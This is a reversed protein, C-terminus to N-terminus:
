VVPYCRKEWVVTGLDLKIVRDAVHWFREDHSVVLVTKGRAKLGPLVTLYFFDRFRVDQEASWEDFVYIPRDELLAAILALRKRQGTSLRLDTFTGDRYDVKAALGMEDILARVREPDVSELGYLEDFLHFKAFIACFQERLGPLESEPVRRGDVEIWGGGPRYLGTILRMTTSKGSGNGGVIFVLEGRSLRLNLPGVTFGPAGGDDPYTFTVGAYTIARFDRFRAALARARAPEVPDPVKLQDKITMILTLSVGAQIFMPLQGGIKLLTNMCFLLIPVLQFVVAGFGNIFQPFVFVIIGLTDYVVLSGLVIMSAALDGSKTLHAKSSESIDRFAAFVSASRASNLRMEKGGRIIHGIFDLMEAHHVAAQELAARYSRNIKRYGLLAAAVAVVFLLLAPPSLVSLYLLTVMLLVVQQFCEVLLPCTVSLHNTEQSIVTYLRGQGVKEVALLESRRLREIVELRLDKLLQEIVSNARLIAARNCLFYLAFAGVFTAAVWLSPRQGQAVMGSVRIILMLLLANALGAAATMAAIFGLDRRRARKIFDLIAM